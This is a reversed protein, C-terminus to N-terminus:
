AHSCYSELMADLDMASGGSADADGFAQCTETANLSINQGEWFAAEIDYHLDVDLQDQRAAALETQKAADEHEYQLTRGFFEVLEDADEENLHSPDAEDDSVSASATLDVPTSWSARCASDISEVAQIIHQHHPGGQGCRQCRCHATEKGAEKGGEEEEEGGGSVRQLSLVFQFEFRSALKVVCCTCLVVDLVNAQCQKSCAANCTHHQHM